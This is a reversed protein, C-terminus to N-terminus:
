GNNKIMTQTAVSGPSAVIANRGSLSLSTAYRDLRQAQASQGNCNRGRSTKPNNKLLIKWVFEPM